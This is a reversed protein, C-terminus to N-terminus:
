VDATECGPIRRLVSFRRAARAQWARYHYSERMLALVSRGSVRANVVRSRRAQCLLM